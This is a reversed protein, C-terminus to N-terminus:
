SQVWHATIRSAPIEEFPDPWGEFTYWNTKGKRTATKVTWRPTQATIQDAPIDIFVVDGPSLM